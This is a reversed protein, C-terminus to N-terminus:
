RRAVPRSWWLMRGDVDDFAGYREFGCKMLVRQSALNTALTEAVVRTVSPDRALAALLCQLGETAYGKGRHPEGIGYGVEVTGSASAVAKCGLTGVAEGTAREVLAGGLPEVASGRQRLWSAVLPLADGPWEAPFTVTVRRGEVPLEASVVDHQLAEAPPRLLWLRHSSGVLPVPHLV